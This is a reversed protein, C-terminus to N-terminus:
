VQEAKREAIKGVVPLKWINGKWGAIFGMVCIGLILLWLVLGTIDVLLGPLGLRALVLGVFINTAFLGGTAYVSQYAHFRIFKDRDETFLIVIGTIFGLLYCIAAATNRNGNM